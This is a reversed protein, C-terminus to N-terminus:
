KAAPQSSTVDVSFESLTKPLDRFVIAFPIAQDTNVNMNSLSQGFQNSMLEEIKSYPLSRLDQDSIPNGAFITKQLLPKEEADFIVGKVQISARPESFQNLAEGRIVFLEGTEQNSVFSGQLNNLVIQGTQIPQDGKQGFMQQLSQQFQEPGNLYILVGGLILVGLVLLLLMRMLSAMGGTKEQAPMVPPEATEAAAPTFAEAIETDGAPPEVVAATDSADAFSPSFDETIKEDSAKLDAPLADTPNDVIRFQEDTEADTESNFSFAEDPVTTEEEEAEVRFREYSFDKDTAPSQEIAPDEAPSDAADGFAFGEEQSSEATAPEPKTATDPWISAASAAAALPKTARFVARCRACRVKAGTDPIREPNIRFKTTCEPCVIVM